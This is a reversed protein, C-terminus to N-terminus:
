RHHDTPSSRASSFREGLEEWAAVRRTILGELADFLGIGSADLPYPQEMLNMFSLSVSGIRRYYRTEDVAFSTNIILQPRGARRWRHQIGRQTAWSGEYAWSALEDGVELGLLEDVEALPAQDADVIHRGRGEPGPQGVPPGADVISHSYHHAVGVQFATGVLFSRQVEDASDDSSLLSGDYWADFATVARTLLSAYDDNWRACTEDNWGEENLVAALEIAKNVALGTGVSYIPDAFAFADAMLVYDLTAGIRAKRAFRARTHVRDRWGEGKPRWSLRYPSAVHTRVVRELHAHDVPGHRSVLGFSLLKERYLPIQWTWTGPELETLMTSHSPQWGDRERGPLLRGKPIDYRRYSLDASRIHDWFREPEVATIDLYAWRAWVPWLEDITGLKSAVVMSPGSCDLIPGAVEYRTTSTTGVRRAVEGERVAERVIPTRWTRHMLAELEDRGVHMAVEAGHPPLPFSAVSGRGMFTSGAKPSYSPLQKIAPVMERLVPHHFHEPIISEGIKFSGPRPDLVVLRESRLFRALVTGAMGAGIVLHDVRKTQM